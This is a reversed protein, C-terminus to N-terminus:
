VRGRNDGRPSAKAAEACFWDSSSGGCQGPFIGLGSYEMKILRATSADIPEDLNGRHLAVLHVGLVLFGIALDLSCASAAKTELFASISVM